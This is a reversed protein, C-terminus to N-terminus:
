THKNEGETTRNSRRPIDRFIPLDLDEEEEREEEREEENEEEAAEGQVEKIAEALSIKTQQRQEAKERRSLVALRPEKKIKRIPDEACREKEMKRNRAKLESSKSKKIVKTESTNLWKLDELDESIGAAEEVPKVFCIVETEKPICAPLDSVHGVHTGDLGLNILADKKKIGAWAPSELVLELTDPGSYDRYKWAHFKNVEGRIWRDWSKVEEKPDLKIFQHSNALLIPKSQSSAVTYIYATCQQFIAKGEVADIGYRSRGSLLNKKQERDQITAKNRQTAV